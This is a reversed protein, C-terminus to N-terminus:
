IGLFDRTTNDCLAMFLSRRLYYETKGLHWKMIHPIDFLTDTKVWNPNDREREEWQEVPVGEVVPTSDKWFPFHLKARWAITDRFAGSKGVDLVMEHTPIREPVDEEDVIRRGEEDFSSGWRTFWGGNYKEYCLRADWIHGTNMGDGVFVFNDKKGVRHIVHPFWKMLQFNEQLQYRWFSVNFEGQKFGEVARKLLRQHPIEDAQYALVNPGKCLSIAQNMVDAFASADDRPFTGKHINVKHNKAAIRNLIELTGDTSGLDLVVFEDVFPLWSAMSEYLCFGARANKIFTCASLQYTV